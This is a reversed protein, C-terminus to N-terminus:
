NFQKLSPITAPLSILLHIHDETGGVAVAKM